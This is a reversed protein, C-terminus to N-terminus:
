KEDEKSQDSPLLFNETLLCFQALRHSIEPIDRIKSELEWRGLGLDEPEFIKFAKANEIAKLLPPYQSLWVVDESKGANSRLAEELLEAHKKLKQADM